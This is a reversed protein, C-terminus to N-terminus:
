WRVVIQNDYSATRSYEGVAVTGPPLILELWMSAAVFVGVSWIRM